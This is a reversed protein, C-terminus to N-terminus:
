NENRAEKEAQLCEPLRLPKEPCSVGEGHMYCHYNNKDLFGCKGCTIAGCNIEVVIKRKM